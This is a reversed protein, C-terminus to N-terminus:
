KSHIPQKKYFYHSLIWSIIFFLFTFVFINYWYDIALSSIGLSCVIMLTLVSDIVGNIEGVKNKDYNEVLETSFIPPLTTYFFSILFLWIIVVWFIDVFYAVIGTLIILLSFIVTTIKKDSFCTLWFTDILFLQNIATFIWIWSLIYAIHMGSIHFVSDLFLSIVWQYCFYWLFLFLTAFLLSRIKKIRFVEIIKWFTNYNITYKEDTSKKSRTEPLFFALLFFSIINLILAFIFPAQYWYPLLIWGFFPGIIFALGFLAWFYSFFKKKDESSPSIDIGISKVISINWWTIWNVFRAFIFLLYSSSFILLLRSLINWIICVLLLKKRWFHDSLQWLIPASFFACLEYIILWFGIYSNNVHYLSKLEPLLPILIWFSLIDLFLIFLISGKIFNNNTFLRM